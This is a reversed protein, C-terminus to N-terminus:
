AGPVCGKIKAFDQETGPTGWSVLVNGYAEGKPELAEITGRAEKLEAASGFVFVSVEAGTVQSSQTVTIDQVDVDIGSPKLSAVSISSKEPEARYGAKKVCAVFAGPQVVDGAPATTQTSAGGGCGAAVLAAAALAALTTRTRM